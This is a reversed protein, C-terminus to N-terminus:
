AVWGVLRETVSGADHLATRGVREGAEAASVVAARAAREAAAILEQTHRVSCAHRRLCDAAQELDHACRELARGLEDTRERFTAAAPSYWHVAAAAASLRRARDRLGAAHDDLRRAVRGLADVDIPQM